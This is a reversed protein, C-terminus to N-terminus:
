GDYNDDYKVGYKDLLKKAQTRVYESPHTLQAKARQIELGALSGGDFGKRGKVSVEILKIENASITGTRRTAYRPKITGINAAM